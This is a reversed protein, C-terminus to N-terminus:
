QHGTRWTVEGPWMRKPNIIGRRRWLSYFPIDGVEHGKLSEVTDLTGSDLANVCRSEERPETLRSVMRSDLLVIRTVVRDDFVALADDAITIYPVM